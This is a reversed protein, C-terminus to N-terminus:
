EPARLSPGSRKRGPRKLSALNGKETFLDLEIKQYNENIGTTVQNQQQAKLLLAEGQKIRRRIERVPISNETFTSLLKQEKLELEYIQKRMEDAASNAFGTTEDKRVNAPLRALTATLAKVRAKSAAASSQTNELRKKMEGIRELLIRRQEPISAVATRNKLEKLEEETRDLLSRLKNQQKKFFAYSGPTRNAEVHKEIYFDVLRNLVNQALAPDNTDYTITIINSKKSAQVDLRKMLSEIALDKKMMRRTPTLDSDSSLLRSLMAFPYKLAYRVWYRVVTPLSADPPLTEEAGALILKAGIADVVNKALERSELIDVESNIENEWDTSINIVRGAAVTPDLTANERGLRVLLVAESRYVKSGLFTGLSVVIVMSLFFVIMKRKHRFLVNYFDRKSTEVFNRQSGNDAM